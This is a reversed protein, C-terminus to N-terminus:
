FATGPQVLPGLPGPVEARESSRSEDAASRRRTFRASSTPTATLRREDSSPSLCGDPSRATRCGGRSTRSSARCDRASCAWSRRAAIRSGFLWSGTRDAGRRPRWLALEDTFPRMNTASGPEDPINFGGAAFRGATGLVGQDPHYKKGGTTDFRELTCNLLHLQQKLAVDTGLQAFDEEVMCRIAGYRRVAYFIESKIAERQGLGHKAICDVIYRTKTLRDIALIVIACTGETAPDVGVVVPLGQPIDGVRRSPDKSAELVDLPFPADSLGLAEQQYILAWDRSRMSERRRELEETPWMEPWYSEGTELIAPTQLKAWSATWENSDDLFHSYLDQEHVRTALLAVKGTAPLRSQVRGLLWGIIREQEPEPSWDEVIDDLLVFDLRSGYM